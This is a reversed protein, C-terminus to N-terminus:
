SKINGFIIDDFLVQIKQDMGDKTKIYLSPDTTKFTRVSDMIKVIEEYEITDKPEFTITRENLNKRKVAILYDHLLSLNYEGNTKKITKLKKWPVGTYINIKKEYIRLGLNLPKNNKPPPKTSVTPVNSNIENALGWKIFHDIVDLDKAFDDSLNLPRIFPIEAGCNKAIRAIEYDDTSVFIRSFLNSKLACEISWSILPKGNFLKINKRPIRKSGGRAPILCIPKM